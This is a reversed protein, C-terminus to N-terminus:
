FREDQTGNRTHARACTLASKVKASEEGDADDRETLDGLERSVSCRRLSLCHRLNVVERVGEGDNHQAASDHAVGFGTLWRAGACTCVRRAFGPGEMLVKNERKKYMCQTEFKSNLAINGATQLSDSIEPSHPPTQPTAQHQLLVSM